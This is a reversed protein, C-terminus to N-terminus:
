RLWSAPVQRYGPTSAVSFLSWAKIFTTDPYYKETEEVYRKTHYPSLTVDTKGATNYVQDKDLGMFGTLAPSPM